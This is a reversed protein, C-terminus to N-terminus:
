FVRKVARGASRFGDAVSRGATVFVATVPDRRGGRVSAEDGDAVANSLAPLPAEVFEESVSLRLSELRLSEEPIEFAAAVVVPAM